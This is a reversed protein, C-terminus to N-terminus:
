SRLAIATQPTRKQDTVLVGAEVCNTAPVEHSFVHGHGRKAKGGIMEFGRRIAEFSDNWSEAFNCFREFAFCACSALGPAALVWFINDYRM